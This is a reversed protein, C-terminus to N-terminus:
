RSRKAIDDVRRRVFKETPKSMGQPAKPSSGEDLRQAYPYAAVITDNRLRTRRRANGTAKPTISRWYEYAQEAIKALNDIQNDISKTMTDKIKVM